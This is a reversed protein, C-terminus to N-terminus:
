FEIVQTDPVVDTQHEDLQGDTGEAVFTHLGPALFFDPFPSSGVLRGDIFLKIESNNEIKLRAYPTTAAPSTGRDEFNPRVM